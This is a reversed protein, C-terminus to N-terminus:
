CFLKIIEVLETNEEDEINNICEDMTEKLKTLKDDIDVKSVNTDPNFRIFIWKGSHIMYVDDYRIEEDIQNYGRHGFEDTEIALITNGILKRHDIRRRHSCDCNGTYLPINHVFGDYHENIFNRVMLEKSLKQTKKSRPDDPFLHKFCTVCYGDHYSSGGRSDIWDICNPCRKGGGHMSCKYTGGVAIKNCNPEYCRRAGGHKCCRHSKGISIKSCGPEICKNGIRHDMCKNYKNIAPKNCGFVDCRRGGGHDFCCYDVLAKKNTCGPVICTKKHISCHSHISKIRIDCWPIACKIGFHNICKNYKGHPPKDCGDTNCLIEETHAICREVGKKTANNCGTEVCRPKNHFDCRNNKTVKNNCHKEICTNFDGNMWCREVCENIIKDCMLEIACRQKTHLYCWKTNSVKKNCGYEYCIRNGSHAFCKESGERLVKDCGDESCKHLPFM